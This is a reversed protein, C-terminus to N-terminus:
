VFHFDDAPNYGVVTRGTGDDAVTFSDADYAGVIHLTADHTGDSVTLTGGSGDQNAQYVASTGTGYWIDGLDVKDDNTIGAISGSFDFSDDLRLTGAADTGFIVDASSAAHFELQSMNGIIADGDGTVQGGIAIDGGNAWILGSNAVAGNITLGGSGTAELTGSNVITSSGTDIVLAHTGTAIIAGQNNLGLLGGGLQGAGSITNDVNTLTVDASTGSIVNADSDSLVIQGGGQLTIGSAIVELQTTSGASDLAITGTNDIVGGLPMIAGDAISMTGANHTVPEQNFLFNGAALDSAVVGQVTITEGTGVTILANGNGDDTIALDSFGNVGDFGILDIKDAAVDFNHLTDAAIPQGFVFLDAGSSGTLHDDTSLAYIPNGQAFVEVNAAALAGGTSGDSNTWAETINLLLAGAYSDPSTISLAAVKDTSVTWTGDGADVGESLSWGAPIGSITLTLPGIHGAAPDTLGLTIASGAVGAPGLTNDYVVIDSATIATVGAVNTVNSLTAVQVRSGTNSWDSDFWIEGKGTTSNFVIAYLNTAGGGTDNLIQTTTQSNSIVDVQNDDNNNITSIANRSTFDNSDLTAGGATATTNGFTFGGTVAGGLFAIKDTNDAYDSITDTGGNTRLRFQDAGGNGTLTDNGGQGNITEAGGGGIITDASSSGNINFAETQNSLNLSVGTTLTINEINAIQADSSSTFNAGLQLTDSNGGGDLLTDNQAGVITDNGNQASISDVGSGGTITDASASGTITFAESQIGLNITVGVAAGAASIAEVNVLSIDALTNLVTSTSTLNITDTGGALSISSTFANLQAGTLTISDNGGSGTLNRGEVGTLTPNNATSIDVTGTVNVNVYDGAGSGLDIANFGAFQAVGLTLGDDGSSGTLTEIGSLTGTSFDVIGSTTLVIQDAGAGGTISEGAVFNGNALNFTDNGGSGDLTDAGAGGTITDAGSGGTITDASASGTITFAESQIGLNITVGVAAGAASIAEVNVLSIDALTNLVTSTSTLNITDTGGALSISSTFANLQAGTLTISDNGGSGTLNRGEVGTLTPNNATSIDVTGTVNVNVYDGAGSGLDIANFGAFQAVGLTLGDDGSSGTLTEIGSLTGTSFDVIGSTTLVIQDAGAGGTISEGAVFNGNALNFTDNGGSGDLTDAGAGGTITDAGSGGTIIDVGASGIITFGETQNSFNLTSAATLVINEINAIQTDSASIFNAGIQLTDNGGSGDLLTDNQAGVITDAASGGTISDVGASGTITFGETQNSFNLTAASTLLVNEINVIQADSTSAFNAGIQLIDTETGGDLLNDNQAGIITDDDAGGFIWDASSGGTLTDNGAFGYIATSSAGATFSNGASTGLFLDVVNANASGDTVQLTGSVVSAQQTPTLATTAGSTISPNGFAAAFPASLSLTPNDPDTAIFSISTSSVNLNSIVAADNTGHITFSVLKSTGDAATVTFTDLHTATGGNANSGALFQVAANAVSYTYSGDAALVLAGLNGAGPTVTTNFHNEGTDVDTISISGTATLTTPSSDETVDAVTPDGIVAADNTGHITFSVLKSTGDAATVTFTDLHTATGGNANSGALFQVAANAVSYTYSGDAALVLAGLNGAGPTVTTNFHNEGTDVDTISISGTATLTTPSSDETVDAVTPDGIVAADNTGHITFSVLKSTGDAATVTFTDLHTATGGNANSGALFQVAANAVSYTYSGDAALVLAGLNGAGPTVTTNFHNEGTDVDTISISGTATLTTPSSDETVDAVTPDGIVAADNTGHITFSVLKSTGDAATVTFTDLHTATGGNANSGALFQVAANAVSYTYSGDAALVLAGLNGAGPTVTTNFHNEGTDVDTISISGTATLTTPSSDETVDAVTPDGIVAADNTGHITFSVLKSTGDAATVTFTDLHTATGGNANSGALFQVAANAVSYTYSGDAALVLAGLNGAGPTVTTNFHNEGTDVDTISISGTATLTTPSSDETVDAVTPDGIVAADNTGHITFSVLKSTGDAATVTFTDLHTATGGNANSGALFQVAANAVSYTYSGDAALVLAGLNGAGPTVTTNFHNEGTDVDTISISGTATLTTPSSDETVDAVTPDGIVAADNTGHITFSVLKSTGDAATVTFTDLHTATGGNANSGALFQVAANAVSYTYSGDAALVLAGLNGAGPTVTTNFHNEGTDVDTISISGTATLTTPSSDETVDAVTPDGIVAADNTGHITFSVLKSTGDAATVTFTDLHTATGGNANSGALFQVAANAVSYTYSGDAALVLAGLNGAGPTVTTNFHNEGTDVDTISISGTATLTTPSSDETVDAVTPDGIVAADNTGHITFSVLKSTGDAATVTFTDLHTATGGNANSGALFQVAANAVSYTYSGDAALVLAGLNGAGPTVTTNFHNEGTDVDTISISGTATLTTPSSDETVDAVTPDGIVAADNTGHITFSVLKSTGDAATVTFTDLHTATGGNANSGALFQVAANAVSYTYSGDAALVLAGLNGAGPTVTTNFHNEGTDVDTISISGTATLTTPSSDETVDAVTPDGIVAADNTGHITFSVLKSTGDAATVTFTDLHTATGGNANSGALFQVAANAVSYTYSGDAALVLAGLNGAGPTVTTNFHNEGTDVDTISISGTATLTTPSSDETVDAVTPDGIVAADNTGHITFSVLKSTGDAATVTFTDLHTATGGNANSGALFQVAANAVSYTYSGDAALVLAGLNGAGPTVTTNFHNEGTDVDTISISGTATLTTPSSDETVDAVTPDGIVAADNTGHITFSVLKSTGDAATVTFTDLHTATGGNANSGALFQVAANAVSYTYSGDAALVLAGLNGAGPTVTTNFHNEGTDVDTISISGTATLTTPSSDETVDAVTPDGIVAADNTGHITFSVLKSTGDAATVTFTDLHTATGGNANSGALFQVAANAVSYTYSGDAALVLAGLNGAGPTVTTNFHNEGTDVDTISISGTATLTTPSSDETVDAVTPDGIVAADNTGHITFSVLKSTGDAATVTFTDLHTATGGNANSGALFQVAANAVSYTYSGDAALVLAGLNGAGPTVTTNFHNEGTDVDTISISGTATLTTPSSDETVDAVTPDGIVAADNTGHITFSVLKSTGDAATVTFTDLHTATGGNANSGALFQVAANAVSYTYSGDAALVLAGLNGAGPTVTTNFHNEGTDVDTISISGTATLTTPSSDETVDAVTPDGIVAADNTGHITFSVLKSTGDAATVTFTDLHTATGGNANSGALFQVAANAVSYTYSGDAALVLAGLNGAGPTVTTNFHNEGTDVDTISISGTATLTTPSSDETVDAVTPDGIVAADNTGHITFSVLKSTGDAATVTFTDLHTATGGNANSGALFQVAANAVSYTYSGDAALVLAGLNGAGPTVTTNFHNEGTDVDTISISGTATLTTPSSDETVDAVTPDGIVAADNTGHITFSVLKSTGDAATVTFTDLHTATGGNANSGALFQVAANAVSYTYSGDAALVLAGLNGAGPTVTTNFHNEGTDVDTISISGTATLTTPSSDETVDAVTPDGIVAADNTGHITFTVNQTGSNTTGDNVQVTYTITLSQGARLFDLNAATPDYSYGINAAGGNSTTDTLTFAGSAILAAAGAPLSFPSGNLQVVPSGVVSAHLTNGIDLDSVSFNGTIAALNQASASTLELVAAPDSTGSLVPGDNTGAFQITATAWSLTGNGLRISYIFTDTM